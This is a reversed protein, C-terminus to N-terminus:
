KFECINEQYNYRGGGDLCSDIETNKILWDSIFIVLVIIFVWAFLGVIVVVTSDLDFKKFPRCILYGLGKVLIEIIVEFFFWGLFRFIGGIASGAIEDIPM